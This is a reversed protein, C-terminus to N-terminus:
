RFFCTEAEQSHGPSLRLPPYHVALPRVMFLGMALAVLLVPLLLDSLTGSWARRARCLRQALLAAAQALAGAPPGDAPSFALGSDRLAGAGRTGRGRWGRDAPAAGLGSDSQM